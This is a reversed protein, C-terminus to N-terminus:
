PRPKHAKHNSKSNQDLDLIARGRHAQSDKVTKRRDSRQDWVSGLFVSERTNLKSKKEGETEKSRRKFSSIIHSLM